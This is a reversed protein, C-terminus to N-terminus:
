NSPPHLMEEIVSHLNYKRKWGLAELKSANGRLDVNTEPQWFEQSVRIAEKGDIWGIGDLGKGSWVIKKGMKEVAIEIFEKISHSVGTAVVYDDGRKQQLTMWMAEVYDKAHGWDRRNEINGLTCVEGNKLAKIIKQTIFHDPRLQSEHNYLIGTSVYVSENERYHRAFWSATLKSIGYISRPHHPTNEDQPVQSTKAFIESSSAQFVRTKHTLSLDKVAEIINLLSFTNVEIAKRPTTKCVMPSSVAALNYIEIRKANSFVEISAKVRSFERVDGDICHVHYGKDKLFDQLYQGDQGRHGTIIAVQEPPNMITKLVKVAAEVDVEWWHGHFVKHLYPPVNEHSCSVRQSPLSVLPTNIYNKIDTFVGQDHSIVPKGFHAGELHLLSVGEGRTFTICYDCMNFLATLKPISLRETIVKINDNEVLGDSKDTKLILIHDTGESAKTFVKTLTRVNKREDNTGNYLFVLKNLDRKKHKVTPSSRILKSSWFDISVANVGHRVLIDKLYPFPVIVKCFKKMNIIIDPHVDDTEFMTFLQVNKFERQAKDIFDPWAEWTEILESLTTTDPTDDGLVGLYQELFFRGYVKGYM